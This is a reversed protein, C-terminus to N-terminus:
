FEIFFVDTEENLYTLKGLNFYKNIFVIHMKVIKRQRRDSIKTKFDIKEM